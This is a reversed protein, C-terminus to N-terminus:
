LLHKKGFETKDNLSQVFLKLIEIVGTVDQLNITEIPTHTYRTPISLNATAVGLGSFSIFANETIVGIAVERQYDIGNEEAVTLLQHLLREDPLVGALTGRGHFNMFTFAPGGGLTVDSIGQMDPTDCAPTVDIGISVDPSIKQIVPMIGRINFEEQVCAVIHIDWQLDEKLVNLEESLKLLVACAARNDMSKNAAMENPLEMFDAHYTIFSGVNVGMEIAQKKSKAGIDVYLQSPSPIKGKSEPATFHHSTIGILGPLTGKRGLVDVRLGPLVNVHVGGIRDVRLFGNDEIKRVIFGIEDMHAFIIAKKAHPHHTLFSCTVNGLTDVEVIDGYKQFFPVMYQIVPDERSSVASLSTLDKILTKLTTM